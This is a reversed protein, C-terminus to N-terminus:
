DGWEEDLENLAITYTSIKELTVDEVGDFGIKFTINLKDSHDLIEDELIDHLNTGIEEVLAKKTKMAM